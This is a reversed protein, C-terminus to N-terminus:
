PKRMLWEARDNRALTGSMSSAVKVRRALSASFFQGTELTRLASIVNSAFSIQVDLPVQVNCRRAPKGRNEQATGTKGSVSNLNPLEPSTSMHDRRERLSIQACPPYKMFSGEELQWMYYMTPLSIPEKTWHQRRTRVAGQDADGCRHM